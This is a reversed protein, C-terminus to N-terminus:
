EESFFFRAEIKDADVMEVLLGLSQTLSKLQGPSLKALGQILRGQAPDPAQSYLAQGQATLSLCVRRRDVRDQERAVLGKAILRDVVGLVTSSTLHMRSALAKLSLPSERGLEWLAWLQPGTVGFQEEVSRSYTEVAKFIRRLDQMAVEVLNTELPAQKKSQM